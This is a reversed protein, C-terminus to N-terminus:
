RASGGWRDTLLGLPATLLGDPRTGKGIKERVTPKAEPAAPQRAPLSVTLQTGPAPPVMGLKQVAMREIEDPAMLRDVTGALAENEMQTMALEKQFEQLRYGLYAMRAQCFVVIAGCFFALLVMGSLKLREARVAKRPRRLPQPQQPLPRAVQERALIM